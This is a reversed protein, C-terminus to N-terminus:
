WQERAGGPQTGPVSHAGLKVLHMASTHNLLLQATLLILGEIPESLSACNVRVSGGLPLSCLSVGTVSVIMRSM